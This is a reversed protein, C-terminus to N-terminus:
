QTVVILSEIKEFTKPGIGSVRQVEAPTLFLGGTTREEIIRDALVEGIGPLAMLEEKTARNLDVRGGPAGTGADGLGEDGPNV